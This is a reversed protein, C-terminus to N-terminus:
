GQMQHAQCQLLFRYLAKLGVGDGHKIIGWNRLKEMHACSIRLPNDYDKELLYMAYDCFGDPNNYVCHEILEKAEGETNQNRTM